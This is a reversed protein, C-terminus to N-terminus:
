NQIPVLGKLSDTKPRRCCDCMQFVTLVEGPSMGPAYFRGGEEVLNMKPQAGSVAAVTATVPFDDPVGPYNTRNMTM